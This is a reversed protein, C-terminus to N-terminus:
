LIQSHVISIFRLLFATNLFRYMCRELLIKFLRYSRHIQKLIIIHNNIESESSIKSKLYLVCGLFFVFIFNQVHIKKLYM